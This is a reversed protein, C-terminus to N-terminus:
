PNNCTYQADNMYDDCIAMNVVTVGGAIVACGIAQPGSCLTAAAGGVVGGLGAIMKCTNYNGTAGYICREKEKERPDEDGDESDDAYAKNMGFTFAYGNDEVGSVDQRSEITLNGVVCLTIVAGKVVFNM